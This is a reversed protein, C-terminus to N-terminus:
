VNLDQMACLQSLRQTPLAPTPAQQSPLGHYRLDPLARAAATTADAALLSITSGCDYLYYLTSSM